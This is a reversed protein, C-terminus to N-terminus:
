HSILGVHLLAFGTSVSESFRFPPIVPNNISHLGVTPHPFLSSIEVDTKVPDIRSIYTCAYVRDSIRFHTWTDFSGDIKVLRAICSSIFAM